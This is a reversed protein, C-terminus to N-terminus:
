RVSRKRARALLCLLGAGLLTLTAPEPVGSLVDFAGLAQGQSTEPWTAGGDLSEALTGSVNQNNQNWALFGTASQIALFYTQGTTLSPGALVPIMVVDCCLGFSDTPTVNWSGLEVDPVGANATWLSVTADGNSISALAVDIQSVNGGAAATFESAPGYQGFGTQGVTWGGCCNYSDGPGFDSFMVGAWTPLSTVCLALMLMLAFRFVRKM